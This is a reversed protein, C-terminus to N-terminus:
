QIRKYKATIVDKGEKLELLGKNLTVTFTFSLNKDEKNDISLRCDKLVWTAGMIEPRDHLWSSFSRVKGDLEFSMDEFFGQNGIRTWTGLIQKETIECAAMVSIPSVWLLLTILQVLYNKKM